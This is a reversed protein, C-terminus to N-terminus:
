PKLATQPRSTTAAPPQLDSPPVLPARDPDTRYIHHKQPQANASPLLSHINFSQGEDVTDNDEFAVKKSSVDTAQTSAEPLRTEEHRGQEYSSGEKMKKENTDAEAERRLELGDEDTRSEDINARKLLREILSATLGPVAGSLLEQRQEEIEEASM